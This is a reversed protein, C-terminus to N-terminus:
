GLILCQFIELYVQFQWLLELILHDVVIQFNCISKGEILLRLLLLSFIVIIMTNKLFLFIITKEKTVLKAKSRFM